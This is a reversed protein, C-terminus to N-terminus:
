SDKYLKVNAKDLQISKKDGYDITYKKPAGKYLGHRIEGVYGVENHYHKGPAHIRVKSNLKIAEDLIEFHQKFSKFKEM